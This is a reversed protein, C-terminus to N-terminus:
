ASVAQRLRQSTLRRLIRRKMSPSDLDLNPLYTYAAIVDVWRYDSGVVYGNEGNVSHITPTAPGTCVQNPCDNTFKRRSLRTYDNRTKAVVVGPNKRAVVTETSSGSFRVFSQYEAIQVAMDTGESIVQSDAITIAFAAKMSSVCSFAATVMQSRYDLNHDTGSVCKTLATQLYTSTNPVTGCTSGCTSAFRFKTWYRMNNTSVNSRVKPTTVLQLEETGSLKSNVDNLSTGLSLYLDDMFEEQAIGVVLGLGSHPLPKFAVLVAEGGLGSFTGQATTNFALYSNDMNANKMCTANCFLLNTLNQVTGTIKTSLVIEQTNVRVDARTSNSESALKMNIADVVGKVPQQFAAQLTTRWVHYALVVSPNVLMRYGATVPQPRYDYATLTKGNGGTLALTIATSGNNAGCAGVCGSSFRLATLFEISGNTKRALQIEHGSPLNPNINNFASILEALTTGHAVMREVWLATITAATDVTMLADNSYWGDLLDGMLDRQYALNSLQYERTDEYALQEIVVGLINSLRALNSQAHEFPRTYGFLNLGDLLLDTDRILHDTVANNTHSFISVVAFVVVTTSIVCATALILLLLQTTPKMHREYATQRLKREKNKQQLWQWFRQFISPQREEQAAILLADAMQDAVNQVLQQHLTQVQDFDLLADEDDADPLFEEIAEQVQEAPAQLEAGALVFPLQDMTIKGNVAMTDFVRRLLELGDLELNPPEQNQLVDMDQTSLPMATELLEAVPQPDSRASSWGNHHPSHLFSRPSNSPPDVSTLPIEISKVKDM